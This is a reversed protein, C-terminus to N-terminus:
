GDARGWMYGDNRSHPFSWHEVFSGQRAAEETVQRQLDAFMRAVPTLELVTHAECEPESIHCTCRHETVFREGDVDTDVHGRAGCAACQEESCSPESCAECLIM